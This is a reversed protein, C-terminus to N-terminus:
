PPGPSGAGNAWRAYRTCGGPAGGVYGGCTNPGHVGTVVDLETALPGTTAVLSAGPGVSVPEGASASPVRSPYRLYRPVQDVARAPDPQPSTRTTRTGSHPPRHRTTLRLQVNKKCVAILLRRPWASRGPLGPGPFLIFTCRRGLQVNMRDGSVGWPSFVNSGRWQGWWSGPIFTCCSGAGGGPVVVEWRRGGGGGCSRCVAQVRFCVGRAGGGVLRCLWCIGRCPLRGQYGVESEVGVVLGRVRIVGCSAVEHSWAPSPGGPLSSRRPRRPSCKTCLTVSQASFSGSENGEVCFTVRHM